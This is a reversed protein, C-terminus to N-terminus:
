KTFPEASDVADVKSRGRHHMPERAAGPRHHLPPEPIPPLNSLALLMNNALHLPRVKWPEAGATFALFIATHEAPTLAVYTRFGAGSGTKEIITSPTGAAGLRMWGLGIGTPSGAHDLGKVRMLQTPLLYMAQAAVNQRPGTSDGVLYHLWRAMDGATSYLGSSGDTGVTSACPGEDEVSRLLRGCQETTPVFTTERMGLPKLIRESLLNPFAENSAAQVADALFDFGVNSYSAVSGPPSLLRQYPLWAWRQAFDPYTFHPTGPPANGIERPLGATHTALNLLTIPPGNRGHMVKTPVRAGVPAFRQLPDSFRLKGEAALQSLLDATFVKTISCLRLLSREDPARGSGPATEGFTRILTDHGRVVVLVLSTSSTGQFHAARCGIRKLATSAASRCASVFV